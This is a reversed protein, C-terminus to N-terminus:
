LTEDSQIQLEEGYQFVYSLLYIIAFIMIFTGDFMYDIKCSIIRDNLFLNSFDFAHYQLIEVGFMVIQSIVEGILIIWSLKRINKSICNAFPKEYVMPKLITRITRFILCVYLLYVICFVLMTFIYWKYTIMEPMYGEVLGLEINGPTIITAVDLFFDEPMFPTIILFIVCVIGVVLSIKTFINAVKDCKKALNSIKNMVNIEKETKLKINKINITLDLIYLSKFLTLLKKIFFM